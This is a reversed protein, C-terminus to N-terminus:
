SSDGAGSTSPPWASGSRSAWRCRRAGTRNTSFGGSAPLSRSSPASAPSARSVDPSRKVSKTTGFSTPGLPRTSATMSTPWLAGTLGAARGPERRNLPVFGLADAVRLSAPNSVLARYCLVGTEVLVETAMHSVLRRALGRGRHAPHVLVGVDAPRSRYPTLNGVALLHRDAKIGCLPTDEAGAFGSEAWEEEGCAARLDALASDDPELRSGAAHEAPRLHAADVFAHRSPGLVPGGGEGTPGAVFDARFTVAPDVGELRRALRPALPGPGYVLVAAPVVRALFIGAYGRLGDGGSVVHAGPRHLLEVGCGLFEGWAADVV